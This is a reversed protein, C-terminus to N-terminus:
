ITGAGVGQLPSKALNAAGVPWLLTYVGSFLLPLSQIGFIYQSPRVKHASFFSNSAM